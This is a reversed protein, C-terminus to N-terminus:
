RCFLSLSLSKSFGALMAWLYVYEELGGVSIKGRVVRSYNGQEETTIKLFSRTWLRHGSFTHRSGITKM